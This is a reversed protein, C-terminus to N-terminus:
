KKAQLTNELEKIQDAIANFKRHIIQHHKNILNTTANHRLRATVMEITSGVMFLCVAIIFLSDSM